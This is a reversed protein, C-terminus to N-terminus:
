RGGPGGPGGNGPGGQGPNNQGSGSSVLTSNITINALSTTGAVLRYTQGTVLESSSFIIQSCSQKLTYSFIANNDSDVISVKTGASITSGQWKFTNQTASMQETMGNTSCAFVIGGQFYIRDADLSGNGQGPGEVIVIGGNLYLGGNADLGDGSAYVRLYGNNININCTNVLDSAANIGDDDSYIVLSADEGNITVEAGELGEYSSNITISSNNVVLDYDAHVGDDYTDLVLTSSDINVDGYNTHICDDTSNITVKANHAIYINYDGSTVSVDDVDDGDSDYEIEGAKIGKVSNILAYYSSNLTRIEDKAVRKYSNGSRVFKFDDTELDYTELNTQSYSIFEGHTTLNYEGGSIYVYTDAQIGDGYTDATVNTDVLYAFGQDTTYETVDDDCELQIGDKAKSVVNITAGNTTLSRAAIAHNSGTVNLTVGSSIYLDKSVKFGNKQKSEVNLTGDGSLYVNGKVHFANTDEYDNVITNNSGNLLVLHLEIKNESGFAIGTDSNISVGDLFVYVESNKKATINIYDYEGSLYYNGAESIELGNLESYTEPTEVNEEVEEEVDVSEDFANDEGEDLIENSVDVDYNNDENIEVIEGTTATNETSNFSTSCGALLLLFALAPLLRLKKM